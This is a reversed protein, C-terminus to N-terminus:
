TTRLLYEIRKPHYETNKPISTNQRIKTKNSKFIIIQEFQKFEIGSKMTHLCQMCQPMRSWTLYTNESMKMYTNESMKM